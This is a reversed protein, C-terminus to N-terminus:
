KRGGKDNIKFHLDKRGTYGSHFWDGAGTVSRCFGKSGMFDFLIFSGANMIFAGCARLHLCESSPIWVGRDHRLCLVAYKDGRHQDTQTQSPRREESYVDRNRSKFEATNIKWNILYSSGQPNIREDRGWNPGWHFVVSDNQIHINRCM